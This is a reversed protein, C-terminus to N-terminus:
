KYNKLPDLFYLCNLTSKRNAMRGPNVAFDAGVGARLYYLKVADMPDSTTQHHCTPCASQAQLMQYKRFLREHAQHRVRQHM